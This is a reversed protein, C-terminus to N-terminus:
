VGDGEWARDGAFDRAYTLGKDGTDLDCRAFFSAEAGGAAWRNGLPNDSLM